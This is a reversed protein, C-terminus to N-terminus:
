TGCDGGRWHRPTARGFGQHAQRPQERKGAALPWPTLIITQFLQTPITLPQSPLVITTILQTKITIALPIPIPNPITLAIHIALRTLIQAVHLIKCSIRVQSRIRLTPRSASTTTITIADNTKAHSNSTSQNTYLSNKTSTIAQRASLEVCVVAVWITLYYKGIDM